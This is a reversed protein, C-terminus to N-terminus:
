KNGVGHPAKCAIEWRISLPAVYNYTGCKGIGVLAERLVHM